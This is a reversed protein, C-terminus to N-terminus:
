RCIFPLFQCVGQPTHDIHTVTQYTGVGLTTSASILLVALLQKM